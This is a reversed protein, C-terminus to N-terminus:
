HPRPVEQGDEDLITLGEAAIGREEATAHRRGGGDEDAIDWLRDPM